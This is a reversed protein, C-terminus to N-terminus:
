TYLPKEHHFLTYEPTISSKDLASIPQTLQQCLQSVSAKVQSAETQINSILMTASNDNETQALAKNLETNKTNEIISAIRKDVMHASCTAVEGKILQKGKVAFRLAEDLQNTKFAIRSLLDLAQARYYSTEPAKNLVAFALNNAISHQEQLYKVEALLLRADISDPNEKLSFNLWKEARSYDAEQFALVANSYSSMAPMMVQKQPSHESYFFILSSICSFCLISAAVAFTKIRKKNNTVALTVDTQWIYGSNPQTRILNHEPSLKRLESIIQFLRYDQVDSSQWLAHFLQQKSILRNPHQLFYLLAQATKPRIALEDGAQFLNFTQDCFTFDLFQYIAM